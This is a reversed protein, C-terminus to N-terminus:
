GRGRVGQREVNKGTAAKNMKTSPVDPRTKGKNEGASNQKSRSNEMRAGPRKKKTM